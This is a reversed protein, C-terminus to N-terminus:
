IPPIIPAARSPMIRWPAARSARRALDPDPAALVHDDGALILRLEITPQDVAKALPRALLSEV